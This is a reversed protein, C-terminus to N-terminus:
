GLTFTVEGCENCYLALVPPADHDSVGPARQRYMLGFRIPQGLGDLLHGAVVQWSHCRPCIAGPAGTQALESNEGIQPYPAHDDEEHEHGHESENM